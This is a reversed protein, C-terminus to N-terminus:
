SWLGGLPITARMRVSWHVHTPPREKARLLVGADPSSPSTGLGQRPGVHGEITRLPGWYGELDGHGGPPDQPLRRCSLPCTNSEVPGNPLSAARARLFPLNRSSSSWCALRCLALSGSALALSRRSRLYDPSTQPAPTSSTPGEGMRGGHDAQQRPGGNAAEIMHSHNACVGPWSPRLRGIAPGPDPWRVHTRWVQGVSGSEQM